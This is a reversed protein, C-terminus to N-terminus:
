VASSVNVFIVLCEIWEIKKNHWRRRRDPFQPSRRGKGAEGKSPSGSNPSFLAAKKRWQSTSSSQRGSRELGSIYSDGRKTASYMMREVHAFYTSQVLWKDIRSATQLLMNEIM